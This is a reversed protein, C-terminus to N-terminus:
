RQELVKVPNYETISYEEKSFDIYYYHFKDKNNLQGDKNIDELTRFYLKRQGKVSKWDYLEHLEKTIKRFGTGDMNSIYLAELDQYDLNKDGNTDRDSVSYILYANKTLRFIERLYNISGIKMKKDTLALESGDKRQFVINIFGGTLNDGSNYVSSFDSSSYSDSRGKILGGRLQLDVLEIGFLLVDTSDFQVPLHAVLVKTTDKLRDDLVATTDIPQQHNIKPKDQACSFVLSAACLTLLLKAPTALTM